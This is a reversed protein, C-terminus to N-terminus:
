DSNPGHPTEKLHRGGDIYLVQGTVFGTGLLYLVAEAIDDPDGHRKLPISSALQDLYREDKGAPPLILGPAVANVTVRPALEVAMMRTLLHLMHKSLIYSVHAPDYGAIRTDLLNVIKGRDVMRGFERSLVYPAWANVRLTRTLDDFDLDALTGPTFVSASNILFDVPGATDFVRAILTETDEPKDFDAEVAWSMVGLGALQACLQAAEERARRFHVVINVGESALALAIQRGIRKAAGTVLATMGGLTKKEM